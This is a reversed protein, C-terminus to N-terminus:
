ESDTSQPNTADLATQLIISLESREINERIETPQGRLLQWKDVVIGFATAVQSLNATPIKEPMSDALLHAHEGLKEILLQKTKPLLEGYRDKNQYWYDLTKRNIGLEKEARFTSGNNAEIIAIAQAKVEHSYTQYGHVVEAEIASM